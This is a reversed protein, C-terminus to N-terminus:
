LASIWARQDSWLMRHRSKILRDATLTPPQRGEVISRVIDPALFALDVLHAIRRQTVGERTAIAQMTAGAKIEEFWVWGLAITKVLTRDLASPANALVLKAEIGRRRLAFEGVLSLASRSIQPLPVGLRDALAEPCLTVSLLGPAIRGGAVLARLTPGRDPGSLASCLSKAASPLKTLMEPSAGDILGQAASPTELANIILRAVAGELVAAPLRWGRSDSKGSGAILRRSVYYCYRKGRMVAHSPTLREGTEDTLKGVLPSPTAASAQAMVRSSNSKLRLNVAEFTARDIIAPHQGPYSRAKHRIEGVYVPNALLHYIRGRTFSVGGFTKGSDFRRYKSLLGQRDAAEKVRRACGLELYLQFITRVTGAETENVVLTREKADYGLPVLGGM